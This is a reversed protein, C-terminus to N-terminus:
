KYIEFNYLFIFPELDM